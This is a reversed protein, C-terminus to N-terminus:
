LPHIALTPHLPVRPPRAETLSPAARRWGHKFLSHRPPILINCTEVTWGCGVEQKIGGVAGRFVNTSYDSQTRKTRASVVVTCHGQFYEWVQRPTSKLCKKNQTMMEVFSVNLFM